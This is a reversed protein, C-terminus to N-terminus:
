HGRVCAYLLLHICTGKPMGDRWTAAIDFVFSMVLQVQRPVRRSSFDVCVCMRVCIGIYM